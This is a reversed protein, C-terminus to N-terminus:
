PEFMPKTTPLPQSYWSALWYPSPLSALKWENDQQVMWALDQTRLVPNVPNGGAWLLTVEVSAQGAGVASEGIQIAMGELDLERQLFIQRFDSFEPKAPDEAMYDYAKRYDAAQLALVYNMVVDVPEDGQAYEPGGQRAFFIALALVVVLGIVTLVGWLSRDTNM